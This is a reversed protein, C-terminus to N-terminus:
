KRIDLKVALDIIGKDSPNLETNLNNMIKKIADNKRAVSIHMNVKNKIVQNTTNVAGDPKYKFVENNTSNSRKTGKIKVLKLKLFNPDSDSM